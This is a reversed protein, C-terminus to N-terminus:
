PNLSQLDALGHLRRRPGDRQPQLTPCHLDFQLLAIAEDYIPTGDAQTEYWSGEEEALLAEKELAPDESAIEMSSGAAGAGAQTQWRRIM